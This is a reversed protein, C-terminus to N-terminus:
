LYTLPPGVKIDFNNKCKEKIMMKKQNQSNIWPSMLKRYHTSLNM